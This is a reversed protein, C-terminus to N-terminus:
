HPMSLSLSLSIVWKGCFLVALWVHGWLRKQDLINAITFQNLGVLDLQHFANLPILVPIAFFAFFMFLFFAKNLFELFMYADLGCRDIVELDNLKRSGFVWGLLGENNSEPRERSPGMYTKPAYVRPYRKRVVTFVLFLIASIASTFVISSVFTSVSADTNEQSDAMPSYHIALTLSLLSPSLLHLSSAFLRNPPYMTSVPM